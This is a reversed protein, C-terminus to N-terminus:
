IPGIGARHDIGAGVVDAVEVRHAGRRLLAAPDSQDQEGVTVAIVGSAGFPEPALGYQGRPSLLVAAQASKRGGAVGGVVDAKQGPVADAEAAVEHQSFAGGEDRGVAARQRGVHFRQPQELSLRDLQDTGAVAGPYGIRRRLQGLVDLVALHSRRRSAASSRPSRERLASSASAQASTGL